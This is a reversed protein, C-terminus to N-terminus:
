TIHTTHDPDSNQPCSFLIDTTLTLTLPRRVKKILKDAVAQLWGCGGVVGTVVQLWEVRTVVSDIGLAFAHYYYAPSRTIMSLM